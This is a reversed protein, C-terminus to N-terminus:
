IIHFPKEALKMEDHFFKGVKRWYAFGKQEASCIPDTSIELWAQCLLMDEGPTYSATRQSTRKAEAISSALSASLAAATIGEEMSLSDNPFLTEDGIDYAYQQTKAQTYDDDGDKEGSMNIM